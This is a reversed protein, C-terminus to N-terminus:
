QQLCTVSLLTPFVPPFQIRNGRARPLPLTGYIKKLSFFPKCLLPFAKETLAYIPLIYLLQYTPHGFGLRSATGFCFRATLEKKM